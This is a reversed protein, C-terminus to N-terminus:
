YILAIKTQDKAQRLEENQMELEAHSVELDHNLNLIELDSKAVPNKM